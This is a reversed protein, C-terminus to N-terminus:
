SIKTIELRTVLTRSIIPVLGLSRGRKIGQSARFKTQATSFHVAYIEFAETVYIEKVEWVVGRDAGDAFELIPRGTKILTFQAHAASICKLYIIPTGLCGLHAKYEQHDCIKKSLTM